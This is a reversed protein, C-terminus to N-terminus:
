RALSYFKEGWQYAPYVTDAVNKTEVHGDLYLFNSTRLDWGAIAGNPGRVSGLKKPGHNRGVFNLTTEINAATWSQDGSPDPV